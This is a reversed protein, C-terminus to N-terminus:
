DVNRSPIMGQTPFSSSRILELFSLTTEIINSTITDIIYIGNPGSIPTDTHDSDLINSDESIHQEFTIQLAQLL